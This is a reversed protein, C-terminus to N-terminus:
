LDYGRIMGHEKDHFIVNVVQKIIRDLIKKDISSIDEAYKIPEDEPNGHSDHYLTVLHKPRECKRVEYIKIAYRDNWIYDPSYAHVYITKDEIDYLYLRIEETIIRM